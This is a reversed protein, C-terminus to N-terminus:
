RRLLTGSALRATHPVPWYLLEALAPSVTMADSPPVDRMEADTAAAGSASQAPWHCGSQLKDDLWQSRAEAKPPAPPLVPLAPGAEAKRRRGDFCGGGTDEEAVGAYVRGLFLSEERDREGRGGVEEGAARPDSGVASGRDIAREAAM